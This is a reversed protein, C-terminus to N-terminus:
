ENGSDPGLLIRNHSGDSTQFTVHTEDAEKHGTHVDADQNSKEGKLM